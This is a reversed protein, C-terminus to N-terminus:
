NELAEDGDGVVRVLAPDIDKSVVKVDIQEFLRGFEEPKLYGDFSYAPLEGHDNARDVIETM